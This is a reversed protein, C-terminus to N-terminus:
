LALCIMFAWESKQQNYWWWDASKDVQKFACNETALGGVVNLGNYLFSVNTSNADPPAYTTSKTSNYRRRRICQAGNPLVGGCILSAKLVPGNPNLVAYVGYWSGGDIRANNISLLQVMAQYGTIITRLHGANHAISREKESPGISSGVM